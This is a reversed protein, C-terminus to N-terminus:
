CQGDRLRLRRGSLSIPNRHRTEPIPHSCFANKKRENVSGRVGVGSVRYFGHAVRVVIGGGGELDVDGGADGPQRRVEEAADVLHLVFLADGADVDDVQAHAVGGVGRGFGDDFFEGFGGGIRAVMAVADAVADGAQALFDGFFIAAFVADFEVGFGFDDGGDAGLFAEAMQAEGQEAGAIGGDDAIRSEGDVDVGDGHGAGIHDAHREAVVLGKEVADFAGDVAEIRRGFQQDEVIRM